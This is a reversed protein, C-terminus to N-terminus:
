FCYEKCITGWRDLRKLEDLVRWEGGKLRGKYAEPLYWICVVGLRFGGDYIFGKPVYTLVSRLDFLVDVRRAVARWITANATFNRDVERVPCEIGIQNEEFVYVETNNKVVLYPIIEVLTDEKESVFFSRSIIDNFVPYDIIRNSFPQIKFNNFRKIEHKDVVWM